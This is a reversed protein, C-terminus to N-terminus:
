ILFDIDVLSEIGAYSSASSYVYDETERVIGSNVPNQHIYELKDIADVIHGDCELAHYGDQWLKYIHNEKSEFKFRNLLWSRRSETINNIEQILQKSTFKKLDRIIDSLNEKNRTTILLHVHSSMIIWGYVVLGKEKICHNLSSVIIDSYEPRIFLDIWAVVTFTVFHTASHDRIVYRDKSM